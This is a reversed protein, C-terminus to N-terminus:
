WSLVTNGIAIPRGLDGHLIAEIISLADPLGSAYRFFKATVEAETM